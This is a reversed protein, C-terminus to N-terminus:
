YSKWYHGVGDVVLKDATHLVRGDKDPSTKEGSQDFTKLSYSACPPGRWGGIWRWHALGGALYLAGASGVSQRHDDQLWKTKM